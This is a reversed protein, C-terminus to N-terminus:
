RRRGIHVALLAALVRPSSLGCSYAIDRSEWRPAFKNKFRALSSYRYGAAGHGFLIRRVRRALAGDPADDLSDRCPVSGLSAVRLGRRRAEFLAETLCLDVAGPGAQPHRRVLDLAIGDAGLRLWSSFAHVGGRPGRVVVLWADPDVTEQFRGLSFGMEPGSRREELWARSVPELEARLLPEATAWPVVTATLGARDARAIEHRLNARQPVALTFTSLDVIAEEGFKLLRLGAARYAARLGPASQYFCPEWGRRDCTAVFDAIATPQLEVPALPDGACVAVRAVTRFAVVAGDFLEVARKDSTAVFCSIHSRGHASRARELALHSVASLPRGGRPRREVLAGATIGGLMFPLPVPGAHAGSGLMLAVTEAAIGAAALGRGPGLPLHGRRVPYALLLLAAAGALIWAARWPHVPAQVAASLGAALVGATMWWALLQGQLLGVALVVIAATMAVLVPMPTHHAHGAFLLPRALLIAAWSGVLALAAGSRIGTASLQLSRRLRPHAGVM